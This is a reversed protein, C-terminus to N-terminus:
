RLNWTRDDHIVEIVTRSANDVKYVVGEMAYYRWNGDVRPLRYRTPNMLLSREEVPFRDGRAFAPPQVDVKLSQRVAAPDSAGACVSTVLSTCQGALAPHALGLLAVAALAIGRMIVGFPWLLGM